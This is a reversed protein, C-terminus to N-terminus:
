YSFIVQLTQEPHTDLLRYAEAAQHISFRHSILKAPKIIRILNLATELVRKKTWSPVVRPSPSSVQSSMITLRNRHFLSGFDHSYRKNGYWSGVVIRADRGSLTVAQDLAQPEGSLELVLDFNDCSSNRRMWAQLDMAFSEKAPDLAIHAGCLRSAERRLPSKDLTVLVGPLKSVLATALLGIIGQGIILVQEGIRPSADQILHLATEMSPLFVADEKNLHGPLPVIESIDCCFLSEHSHFAFATQGRLDKSVNRGIDVIEGIASYGYKLPYTIKTRLSSFSDDVPVTDPVQGRYFLMETGASISSILTKIMVQNKAVPSVVEKKLSIKGPKEFYQSVREARKGM